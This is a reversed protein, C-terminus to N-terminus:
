KSGGMFVEVAKKADLIHQGHIEHVQLSELHEKVTKEDNKYQM